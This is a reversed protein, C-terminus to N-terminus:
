ISYMSIGFSECPYDSAHEVNYYVPKHVAGSDHKDQFQLSPTLSKVEM